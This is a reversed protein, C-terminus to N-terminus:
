FNTGHGRGTQYPLVPNENNKRESVILIRHSSPSYSPIPYTHPTALQSSYYFPLDSDLCPEMLLPSIPALCPDDFWSLVLIGAM